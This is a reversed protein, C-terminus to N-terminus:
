RKLRKRLREFVEEAPMTKMEGRDLAEIRRRLEVAWAEHVEEQTKDDLSSSLEEALQSREDPDLALAQQLIQDKTM